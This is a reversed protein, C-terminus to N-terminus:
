VYMFTRPVKIRALAEVPTPFDVPALRRAQREATLVYPRPEDPNGLGPDVVVAVSPHNKAAARVMSPGGIDINEVVQDHEAGSAVTELCGRNGCRCIVGDDHVVVHGMEGAAGFAGRFPRGDVVLGAGIGGGIQLYAAHRVNRGAGLTVEALAGLNADNDVYVPLGLRGGLEDALDVGTM